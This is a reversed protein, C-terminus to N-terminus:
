LRCYWLIFFVDERCGPNLEVGWFHVQKVSYQRLLDENDLSAGIKRFVYMSFFNSLPIPGLSSHVFYM